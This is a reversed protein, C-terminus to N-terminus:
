KIGNNFLQYEILEILIHLVTIHCEQIRDTTTCFPTNIYFDSHSKLKCSARGTLGLVFVQQSQAQIAANIISPSNGSTSIALLVDGSRANAEVYRAFVQEYGFDNAVCTMHAIDSIAIASLARRKKRFCGSLEEAFHMADSMSGGNGCSFIRGQQKLTHALQIAAQEINRILDKDALMDSIMKQAEGLAQIIYAQM